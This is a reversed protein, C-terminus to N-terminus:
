YWIQMPDLEELQFTRHGICFPVNMSVTREGRTFPFRGYIMEIAQEISSAFGIVIMNYDDIMNYKIAIM